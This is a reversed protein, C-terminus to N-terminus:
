DAREMHVCKLYEFEFLCFLKKVNKFYEDIENRNLHILLIGNKYWLVVVNGLLYKFALKAMLGTKM